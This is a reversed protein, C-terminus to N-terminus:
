QETFTFAVNNWMLTDLALSNATRDSVYFKATKTGELPDIFTVNFFVEKVANLVIQSEAQTLPRFQLDISRKIAIRKRKLSGDTTRTSGVDLDQIKVVMSTLYPTFDVQGVRLANQVAM